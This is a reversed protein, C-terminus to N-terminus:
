GGAKKGEYFAVRFVKVLEESHTGTEESYRNYHPIFEEVNKTFNYDFSSFVCWSAKESKCFTKWDRDTCLKFLIDGNNSLVKFAEERTIHKM